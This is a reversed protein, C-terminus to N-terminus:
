IEEEMYPTEITPEEKKCEITVVEPTTIAEEVVEVESSDVNTETTITEEVVEGVNNTTEEKLELNANKKAAKAEKLSNYKNAIKENIKTYSVVFRVISYCIFGFGILQIAYAIYAIFGTFPLRFLAILITLITILFAFSCISIWDFMTSKFTTEDNGFVRTITFTLVILSLAFVTWYTFYGGIIGSLTAIVYMFMGALYIQNKNEM